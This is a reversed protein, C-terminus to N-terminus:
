SNEFFHWDAQKNRDARKNPVETCVNAKAVLLKIEFIPGEDYNPNVRLKTNFKLGPIEEFEFTKNFLNGHQSFHYGAQTNGRWTVVKDEM